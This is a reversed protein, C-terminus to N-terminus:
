LDEDTLEFRQGSWGCHLCNVKANYDGAKISHCYHDLTNLMFMQEESVTLETSSCEPCEFYETKM